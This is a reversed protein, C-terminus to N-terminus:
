EGKSLKITVKHLMGTFDYNPPYDGAPSGTDTGIDFTEDISFQPTTRPIRGEALQERGLFLRGRGGRGPGGGDYDFVFRLKARGPPVSRDGVLTTEQVDFLNYTFIPTSQADLYLAWGAVVGGETAIVGEAGAPPIEVDAIIEFSRSAILPATPESLGVTREHFVFERRNANLRPLGTGPAVDGLPLVGNKAAEALFLRKMAALREPEQAALDRGQSFDSRLDYLEWVDEDIPREIRQMVKWPTRGRFASAMWGEHYIARHGFVEFYQTTHREPARRNRFTEAFSKGDMPQQPVGGVSAPAEIGAAELLTPVLDTVHTWQERLGGEGRIGDPWSVVMANRTGGLHSAVTKAWQFPTNTAWAWGAPFHPFSDTGGFADLRALNTATDERMGMLGAFYNWGGYVGGESSSGNDGVVYVFITNDFADLDDLASVLQGVQADTHAFFGAYVEMLRSAIKQEDPSLDTWPPIVDPRPTLITDEPVVGLAKQRAIAREREVDWGHDFQGKFREIWEKPAQLPAHTAGPAFYLFFPKEPRVTKQLKMWSAARQAIDETIHYAEGEPREVPRTGEYLAPEFQHSEGGLFGYFTEFGVGTPWRDFPGSPSTEWPPTLHWKGFASTAYGADRLVRALTAASKKLIGERGSYASASNLVAGVGAAHANRGTLLAARTPSCIGTTHFRNYRLGRAALDDLTPSPIAGGFTAGAAFGVDDLLVVVINPANEPVPALDVRPAPRSADITLPELAAAPIAAGIIGFALAWTCAWAWSSAWASRGIRRRQGRRIRMGLSRSLM